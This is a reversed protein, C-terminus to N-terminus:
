KAALASSSSGLGSNEDDHADPAASKPPWVLGRRLHAHAAPPGCGPARVQATLYWYGNASYLNVNQALTGGSPISDVVPQTTGITTFLTAQKADLITWYGAPGGSSVYATCLPTGKGSTQTGYVAWNGSPGQTLYTGNFVM